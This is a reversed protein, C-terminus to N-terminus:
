FPLNKDLYNTRFEWNYTKNFVKFILYHKYEELDPRRDEVFYDIKILGFILNEKYENVIM